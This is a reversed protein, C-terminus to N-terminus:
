QFSIFVLIVIIWNFVGSVNCTGLIFRFGKIEHPGSYWQYPDTPDNLYEEFM